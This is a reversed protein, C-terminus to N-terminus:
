YSASIAGSILAEVESLTALKDVVTDNMNEVVLAFYTTNSDYNSYSTGNYTVYIGDVMCSTGSIAYPLSNIDSIYGGNFGGSISYGTVGETDKTLTTEVGDITTVIKFDILNHNTGDFSNQGAVERTAGSQFVIYQLYKAGDAGVNRMDTDAKTDAFAVQEKVLKTTALKSYNKALSITFNGTHYQVGNYVIQFAQVIYDDYPELEYPFNECIWGIPNGHGDDGYQGSMAFSELGETDKTITVEKGDINIIAKFDVIAANTGDFIGPSIEVISEPDFIVKTIDKVFESSKVTKAVDDVIEQKDADTFYDTGKEPTKGEAKVGSDKFSGAMEDWEFWNGNEGIYPSKSTQTEEELDIIHEALLNMDGAMVDSVGDVKNIWVDKLAM